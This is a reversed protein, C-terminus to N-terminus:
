EPSVILSGPLGRAPTRGGLWANVTAGVDAFEGVHIKGAANRGEVYALLLGYVGGSAGVTPYVGQGTIGTTAVRLQVQGAGAM